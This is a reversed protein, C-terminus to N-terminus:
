KPRSSSQESDQGGGIFIIDYGGFSRRDGLIMREVSVKFGMKGGIFKLAAINGTDGYLNLLEPYLHCVKLEM